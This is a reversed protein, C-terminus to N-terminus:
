RAGGPIWTPQGNTDAKRIISSERLEEPLDDPFRRITRFDPVPLPASGRLVSEQSVLGPVSYDLATFADIPSPAEGRIAALLEMVQIFDGGGHGARAAEAEWKRWNAPKFEDEYTSLPQWQNPNSSKDALWVKATDMDSRAAEFCGKTGQLSYYTMMHPRNSLMDVRVRVQGGRSLKCDMSCSDQNEYEDGRPDRYHHGSGSGTVTVVRDQIWSLVPGLSHTGYTVGDIGTQWIRRWRTIENLEKLEHLYEGEGYYVDGFLGQAVMERIVAVFRIYCYNEAMMYVASSSRAAEALEWAQTLDVVAPVESLVHIGRQLAATAQPTHFPMPTGIVVANIGSDLFPEYETFLNPIGLATGNKQLIEPNTDCAAVVEVDPQSRFAGMFGSTRPIGVCGVKLAM